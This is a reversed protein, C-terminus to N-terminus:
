KDKSIKTNLVLIIIFPISMALSYIYRFDSAPAAIILSFLNLLPIAMIGICTILDVRMSLVATSILLLFVFLAGRTFIYQYDDVFQYLKSLKTQLIPLLTKNQLPRYSTLLKEKYLSFNVPVQHNNLKNSYYQTYQSHLITNTSKKNQKYQLYYNIRQGQLELGHITIRYDSPNNFRWISATLNLFAQLFVKKNKVSLNMWHHLFIKPNDQIIKRNFDNSYKISDDSQITYKKWTEVSAVKTFYNNDSKDINGNYYYTAGIQQIPISLAESIPSKEPHLIKDTAINFTFILLLAIFLSFLIQRKRKFLLFYVTLFIVVYLGNKRFLAVSFTCIIYFIKYWNKKICEGDTTIIQYTMVFYLLISISYPIDKWLTSMYFGNIPYLAYILVILESKWTQIGELTLYYVIESIIFAGLFIQLTLFTAPSLYLQNSLKILLTHLLPHWASWAQYGNAQGWQNYSDNTMLGPYFAFLYAMWVLFLLCFNIFMLKRGSSSKVKKFEFKAFFSIIESFLLTFLIITTIMAFFFFFSYKFNFNYTSITLFLAVMFSWCILETTPKSHNKFLYLATLYTLLYLTLKISSFSYYFSGSIICAIFIIIIKFLKICHYSPRM